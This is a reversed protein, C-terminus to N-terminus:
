AVHGGRHSAAAGGFRPCIRVLDLASSAGGERRFIREQRHLPLHDAYKMVLVHALLGAGALGKAIPLVPPDAVLVKVLAVPRDSTEAEEGCVEPDAATEAALASASDTGADEPRIYKARVVEVRVVSAPRHDLYSTTEEGLKQLRDGGPLSREVLELVIRHVPVQTDQPKRRGHRTVKKEKKEAVPKPEPAATPAEVDERVEGLLTEAREGAGLDGAKLLGLEKM